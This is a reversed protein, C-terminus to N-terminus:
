AVSGAPVRARTVTGGGPRPGLTLVGGLPEVRERMGLVGYHGVGARPTAGLGVGDDAVELVAEGGRLVLSLTVHSAQAHKAVNTLAEQAVRFLAEQTDRDLSMAREDITCAVEVGTREKMERAMEDLACGLPRDELPAPRLGALSQRLEAMTARVLATTDEVEALARRGDVAFLSHVAELKIAISVLAHGLSDHMERALRNRERLTAMDAERAASLRLRRHAESLERHAQSVEGLLHETQFRERILATIAYIIGVSTALSLLRDILDTAALGHAPPLLGIAALYILTAVGIPLVSDRLPLLGASMGMLAFALGAFSGSIALLMATLVYGVLLYAYTVRRSLPWEPRISPVILSLYWGVVGLSLLVMAPGRWSHWFAPQGGAAVCGGVLIGVILVLWFFNLRRLVPSRYQRSASRMGDASSNDAGIAQEAQVVDHDGHDAEGTAVRSLM